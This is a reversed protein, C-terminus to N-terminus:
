SHRNSTLFMAHEYDKHHVYLYYQVINKTDQFFSVPKSHNNPHFYKYDYHVGAVALSNKLDTFEKLSFGHYIEVRNWFFMIDGIGKKGFYLHKASILLLFYKENSFKRHFYNRYLLLVIKNTIESRIICPIVPIKL